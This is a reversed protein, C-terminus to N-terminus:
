KLHRKMIFYNQMGASLELRERRTMDLAQKRVAPCSKSIPVKNSLAGDRQSFSLTIKACAEDGAEQATTANHKCTDSALEECSLGIDKIELYLLLFM